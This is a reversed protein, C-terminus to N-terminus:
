KYLKEMTDKLRAVDAGIVEAAKKGDRFFQLTPVSSINLKKLVNGLGEQDIDIKYMRVHPYKESLEGILPSILRCPGCWAATFYFVTPLTEDQVESLAGNFEAESKILAINSPGSSSSLTRSLLFSLKSFHFSTASTSKSFMSSGSSFPKFPVSPSFPSTPALPLLTESSSFNNSPLNFPLAPCLKNNRLAHSLLQSRLISSRAM